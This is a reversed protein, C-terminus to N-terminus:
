LTGIQYGKAILTHYIEKVFLLAQENDGHTCFTEAKIFKKNGNITILENKEVMRLIHEVATDKDQIIANPNSRSVLSLNDEYNRDVFGEYMVKFGLKIAEEAIVSGYPVYLLVETKYQDISRLYRSVLDKNIVLDNYLAGHAKIHHVSVNESLAVEFFLHIQKTITKIFEEKNLKLSKRGFNEKDPYSPHAGIAVNNIKALQITEKISNKDGYHGGCAINCSSIYKMLQADYKGGEGLDCNLDIKM